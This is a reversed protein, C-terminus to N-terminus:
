KKFFNFWKESYSLYNQAIKDAILSAYIQNVEFDSTSYFSGIICEGVLTGDISYVKIIIGTSFDPDIVNGLDKEYIYGDLLLEGQQQSLLEKIAEKSLETPKEPTFINAEPKNASNTVQTIVDEKAIEVNAGKKILFYRLNETLNDRAASIYTTPKQNIRRLVFKQTKGFKGNSFDTTSVDTRITRYNKRITSCSISFLFSFLVITSFIQLRQGM